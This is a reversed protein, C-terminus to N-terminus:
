REIADRASGKNLKFNEGCQRGEDANAMEPGANLSKGGRKRATRNASSAGEM